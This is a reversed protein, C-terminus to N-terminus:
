TQSDTEREYTLEHTDYKLNWRFTPDYSLPIRQESHYDRPGHMNSCIADNWEKTASPYQTTHTHTHTYICIYSITKDTSTDTSMQTAGVDQNSHMTSSHAYPHTHRKSDPNQWPHTGPLPTALDCPAETNLKQLVKMRNGYRQMLTCEWSCHLLLARKRWVRKLMNNTSMKTIAMKVLQYRM